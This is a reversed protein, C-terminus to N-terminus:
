RCIDANASMRKGAIVGCSRSVPSHFPELLGSQPVACYPQL